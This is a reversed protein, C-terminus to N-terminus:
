PTRAHDVIASWGKPSLAYNEVAGSSFFRWTPPRLVTFGSAVIVPIAARLDHRLPTLEEVSDMYSGSRRAAEVLERAVGKRGRGFQAAGLVALVLQHTAMDPRGAPQPDPTRGLAVDLLAGVLDVGARRANGPEVLRPNIDIFVPGGRALILDASLAGHWRLHRGLKALLERALPLDISRKHSAGGGAGERVRLNVAFAVLRGHDFVSQAMVLSGDVAEQLVFPEEWSLEDPSHIKRVGRTATGVPAKAFAPFTDWTELASASDVVLSAPQPLGIGSLTAQASIKDQVQALAEFEPVATVVPPRVAALVAVQEQTPFLVDFHGSQYVALAADLWGFPDIGYAPVKHVKAVHRTFRTLVLPDRTLVEVRHGAESLQTAVQRATLGSGDTLLVRVAQARGRM